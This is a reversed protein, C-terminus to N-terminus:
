ARVLALAITPPVPVAAVDPSLSAFFTRDGGVAFDATTGSFNRVGLGSFFRTATQEHDSPSLLL